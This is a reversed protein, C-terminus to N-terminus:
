RNRAMDGVVAEKLPTLQTRFGSGELFRESYARPFREPLQRELRELEAEAQAITTGPSVRGIMNYVHNNFFGREPDIRLPVWLDSAYGAPAIPAVIGPELM